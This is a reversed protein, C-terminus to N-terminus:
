FVQCRAAKPGTLSFFLIIEANAWRQSFPTGSDLNINLASNCLQQNCAAAGQVQPPTLNGSTYEDATLNIGDYCDDHVHCAADTNNIDPGMGGAGCHNGYTWPGHVPVQANNPAYTKNIPIPPHNVPSIPGVGPGDTLVVCTTDVGQDMAHVNGRRIGFDPPPADALTDGSGDGGGSVPTYVGNDGGDTSYGTTSCIVSDLGLPDSLSIPSNMAYAYRNLSQPNGPQYSGDYPDPSM